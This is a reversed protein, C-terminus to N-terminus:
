EWTKGGNDSRMIDTTPVLNATGSTDAAAYFITNSPDLGLTPEVARHGVSYTVATPVNAASVAKGDRHAVGRGGSTRANSGAEATFGIAMLGLSVVTAVVSILRMRM